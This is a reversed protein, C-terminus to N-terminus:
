ANEIGVRALEEPSVNCQAAVERLKALREKSLTITITTMDVEAWSQYWVDTYSDIQFAKAFCGTTAAESEENFPPVQRGWEMVAAIALGDAAAIIAWFTLELVILPLPEGFQNYPTFFEWFLFSLVFVLGALRAARSLM